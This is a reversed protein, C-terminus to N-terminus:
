EGFLRTLNDANEILFRLNTKEDGFAEKAGEAALVVCDHVREMAIYAVGPNRRAMETAFGGKGAGIELWVPAGPMGLAAGPDSSDIDEASILFEGCALLREKGHKKKRM